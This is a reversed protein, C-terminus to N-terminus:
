TGCVDCLGGGLSERVWGTNSDEHRSRPRLCLDLIRIKNIKFFHKFHKGNMKADPISFIRWTEVEPRSSRCGTLERQTQPVMVGPTRPASECKVATNIEPKKKSRPSDGGLFSVDGGRFQV